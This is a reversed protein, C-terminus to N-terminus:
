ALMRLSHDVMSLSVFNYTLVIRLYSSPVARSRGLDRQQSGFSDPTMGGDSHGGSLSWTQWCPTNRLPRRMWVVSVSHLM